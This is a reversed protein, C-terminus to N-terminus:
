ALANEMRQNDIEKHGDLCKAYVRLLCTSATGPESRRM